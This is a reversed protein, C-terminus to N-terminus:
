SRIRRSSSFATASSRALRSVNVSRAFALHHHQNDGTELVFLDGVFNPTFSAVTFTWRPCAIRFICALDTASSTLTVSSSFSERGFDFADEVL